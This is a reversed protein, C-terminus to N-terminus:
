KVIKSTQKSKNNNKTKKINKYWKKMKNFKIM